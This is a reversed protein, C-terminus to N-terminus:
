NVNVVTLTLNTQYVSADDTQDTTGKVSLTITNTGDHDKINAILLVLVVKWLPLHVQLFVLDVRGQTLVALRM